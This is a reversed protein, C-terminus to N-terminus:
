SIHGQKLLHPRTPPLIDSHPHAKLDRISLSQGAHYKLGKQSGASYLRRIAAKTELHLVRLEKELVM